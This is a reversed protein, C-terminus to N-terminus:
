GREKSESYEQLKGVLWSQTQRVKPVMDPWRRRHDAGIKLMNVTFGGKSIRRGLCAVLGSICAVHVRAMMDRM